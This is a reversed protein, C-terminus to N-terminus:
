LFDEGQNHYGIPKEMQYLSGYAGPVTGTIHFGYKEYFGLATQNKESCALRLVERGMPRFLSVAKGLVQVGLGMGRNEPRLYLFSIYGRGEGADRDPDLQLLGVPRSGKMALSLSHRDKRWAARADDLFGPGDYREDTKGYLNVWAEERAALYFDRDEATDLDASRFWLNIDVQKSDKNWWHQRALTSIDPTLHSNDDAFVIRIKGNEIELLTVATNDSHGVKASDKVGLGMIEALTNRILTGHAFVAVTQGDHKAAIDLIAALGRRRVEPFSEGNPARFLPSTQTFLDMQEKDRRAIYAFTHDEWDGMNIERLDPRTHLPLHKPGTIARATTMTRFLDSSYVADIPINQFRQELAKIQRYGNETILSDYQGHIRRYLNGEAEAHRILYLKTM